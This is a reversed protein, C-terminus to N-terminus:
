GWLCCAWFLVSPSISTLPLLNSNLTTGGGSAPSSKGRAEQVTIFVFRGAVGAPLNKTEVSQQVGKAWGCSLALKEGGCAPRFARCLWALNEGGCAPHFRRRIGVATLFFEQRKCLSRKRDSDLERRSLVQCNLFLITYYIYSITEFWM